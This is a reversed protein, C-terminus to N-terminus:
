IKQGRRLPLPLPVLFPQSLGAWIRFLVFQNILDREEVTILGKVWMAQMIAEAMAIRLKTRDDM